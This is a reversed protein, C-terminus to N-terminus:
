RTRTSGSRRHPRERDGLRAAGLLEDDYDLSGDPLINVESGPSCRSGTSGRTPRASWSSRAACSTPRLRRRRLRPDGLPRHDRPLEYGRERAALAMEEITARGDSAIPTATCTAASTASSSSSRCRAPRAGGRDRRPERAAGARHLRARRARLAGGRDRLPADRRDRRRPRRVRLPAPGHRVARERLAANHAASGTLHQLLNGFQEPAVARLEVVVGSHTRARASAEGTRSATEFQELSASRPRAARPPRPRHRPGQRERRAPAGLRRARRQAAPTSSACRASWRARRGRARPRPRDADAPAGGRRRRAGRAGDGRVERRLGRM